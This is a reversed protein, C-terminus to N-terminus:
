QELLLLKLRVSIGGGALSSVADVVLDSLADLEILYDFSIDIFSSGASQLGFDFVPMFLEGAARSKLRCSVAYGTTVGILSATLGVVYAKYGVPVTYIGMFTTENGLVIKGYVTLGDASTLTVDGTLATTSVNKAYILRWLPTTLTVATTGQLTVQQTVVTGTTTLGSVEIVGTDTLSTSVISAIDAGSPYTYASGGDWVEATTTTLSANVGYVLAVSHDPISQNKIALYLPYNIQM